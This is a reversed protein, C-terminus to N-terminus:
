TSRRTPPLDVATTTWIVAFADKAARAPRLRRGAQPIPALFGRRADDVEQRRIRDRVRGAVLRLRLVLVRAEPRPLRLRARDIRKFARIEGAENGFDM